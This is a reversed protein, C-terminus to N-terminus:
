TVSSIPETPEAPVSITTAVPIPVTTEAVIPENTVATIPDNTVASEAMTEVAPSSETAAAETAGTEEDEDAALGAWRMKKMADLRRLAAHFSGDHRMKYSLRRAGAASDDVRAARFALEREHRANAEALNLREKLDATAAAILNLVLAKGRARGPLAAVFLQIREAYELDGM